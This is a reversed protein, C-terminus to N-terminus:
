QETEDNESSEFSHIVEWTRADRVEVEPGSQMLVVTQDHILTFSSVAKGEHIDARKLTNDRLDWLKVTGIERDPEYQLSGILIAEGRVVFQLCAIADNKGKLSHVLKGSAVDWVTIESE